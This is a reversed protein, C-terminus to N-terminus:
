KGIRVHQLIKELNSKIDITNSDIHTMSKVGASKYSSKLYLKDYYRLLITFCTDLDDEILANVATKTELGGLKKKIRVIANILKEKEFKGYHKIIHALRNQFPIELFLFSQSQMHQFFTLPINLNGIRQSEGELWIPSDAFNVIKHHLELALVNEFHEQSPQPNMGLSGFASGKHSAIGELDIVPTNNKQLQLLIGTKDSGTYGSLIILSYKKEFQQLAWQRYTKYGGSLLYVKFGYLDLLWAITASRMGGRWCHVGIERSSNNVTQMIKEAEEVLRVMNKGFFDLGLKIAKERSEQKYATGIIKREENTFIPFSVANPIHAHSYEGPSRVDLIPYTEAGKIFDEINIKTISM